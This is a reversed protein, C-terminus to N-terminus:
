RYSAPAACSFRGPSAAASGFVKRFRGARWLCWRRVGFPAFHPSPLTSSVDATSGVHESSGHVSPDPSQPRVKHFSRGRATVATEPCGLFHKGANRPPALARPGHGAHCRPCQPPLIEGSVRLPPGGKQLMTASPIECTCAFPPMWRLHCEAQARRPTSPLSALAVTRGGTRWFSAGM